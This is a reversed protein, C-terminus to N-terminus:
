RGVKKGFVFQDVNRMHWVAVAQAQDSIAIIKENQQILVLQHARIEM